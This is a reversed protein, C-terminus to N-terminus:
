IQFEKAPFPYISKGSLNEDDDAEEVREVVVYGSYKGTTIILM